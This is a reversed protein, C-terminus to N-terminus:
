DIEYLIEEKKNDRILKVKLSKQDKLNSLINIMNKSNKVSKDDIHTIIDGVKLGVSSALSNDKIYSIKYGNVSNAVRIDDFVKKFDKSYEDIISKSIKKSNYSSNKSHGRKPERSRDTANQISSTTGIVLKILKSNQEFLAGDKYIQILKYGKYIDNPSLIQTSQNTSDKVIVYGGSEKQYIGIISLNDYRKKISANPRQSNYTTDKLINSVDVRKARDSYTDSNYERSVSPLMASVIIVVIKSVVIATVFAIIHKKINSSISMSMGEM